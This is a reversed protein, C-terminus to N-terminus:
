PPPATQGHSRAAWCTDGDKKLCYNISKRWQESRNYFNCRTDLRINGGITRTNRIQPTAVLSAVQWLGAYMRQIGHNNVLKTITQGAGIVLSKGSRSEKLSRIRKLSVLPTPKHQGRKM